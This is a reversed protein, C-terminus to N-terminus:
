AMKFVDSKDYVDNEFSKLHTYISCKSCTPSAMFTMKLSKLQTYLVYITKLFMQHLEM